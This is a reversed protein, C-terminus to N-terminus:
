YRILAIHMYDKLAGDSVFAVDGGGALIKEISDEVADKTYLNTKAEETYLLFDNGFIAQCAFSNEVVLLRANKHAAAKWVDQIGVELKGSNRAYELQNILDTEKVKKWDNIYPQIASEIEDESANEFNGHVYSTIFPKNQTIQQFCAMTERTSLIFLPAPFANLIFYLGNDVSKLFKKLLVDKRLYAELTISVKEVLNREEIKKKSAVNLVIQTLIDGKGRYITAKKQSIVLVLYEQEEKKHQILQRIRFANDVIIKEMVPMDLYYVRQEETSVLVAISRKHTSYELSNLVTKLKQSIEIAANLDYHAFLEYRVRDLIIKLRNELSSKPVMKPDFPLLLSVYPQFKPRKIIELEKSVANTKM